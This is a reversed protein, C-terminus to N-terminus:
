RKAHLICSREVAKGDEERRRVGGRGGEGGEGREWGGGDERDEGLM